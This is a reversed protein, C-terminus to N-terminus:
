NTQTQQHISSSRRPAAQATHVVTSKRDESITLSALGISSAALTANAGRVSNSPKVTVGIQWKKIINTTLVCIEIVHIEHFIFRSFVPMTAFARQFFQSMTLLNDPHIDPQASSVNSLSVSYKVSGYFDTIMAASSLTFYYDGYKLTKLADELIFAYETM